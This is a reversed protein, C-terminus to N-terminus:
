VTVASSCAGASIGTACLNSILSNYDRSSQVDGNIEIHPVGVSEPFKEDFYLAADTRLKTGQDNHYCATIASYDMSEAQACTQGKTEASGSTDDMCALFDVGAGQTDQACLFMEEEDCNAEDVCRFGSGTHEPGRIGPSLKFTVADAIGDAHYVQKLTDAFAM